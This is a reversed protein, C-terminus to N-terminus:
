FMIEIETAINGRMVTFVISSKGISRNLINQIEVVSSIKEGDLKIIQDGQKLGCKDAASDKKITDIYVTEEQNQSFTVGLPVTQQIKQPLSPVAIELAKKVVDSPIIINKLFLHSEAAKYDVIGLLRGINDVLAGGANEYFVGSQMIPNKAVFYYIGMIKELIVNEVPCGLVRFNNTRIFNRQPTIFSDGYAKGLIFSCKHLILDDANKLRGISALELCQFEQENRSDIKLVAINLEPIKAILKANYDDKTILMSSDTTNVRHESNISAIIRNHEKLTDCTTVIFGEKHVIVGNIVYHHHLERDNFAANYIKGDDKVSDNFIHILVIAPLAQKAAATSDKYDDSALFTEIQTLLDSEKVAKSEASFIFFSIALIISSVKLM